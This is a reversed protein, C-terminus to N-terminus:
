VRAALDYLLHFATCLEINGAASRFIKDLNEPRIIKHPKEQKSKKSLGKFSYSRKECFNFRFRLAAILARTDRGLLLQTAVYERADAESPNKKLGKTKVLWGQFKNLYGRYIGLTTSGEYM